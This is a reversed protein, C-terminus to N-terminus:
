LIFRDAIDRLSLGALAQYLATCQDDTLRCVFDIVARDGNDGAENDGGDVMEMYERLTKPLRSLSTEKKRWELMLDVLRRLLAQQAVQVVALEVRQVVFERTLEKYVQVEHWEDQRLLLNGGGQWKPEKVLDVAQVYDGIRSSAWRKLIGIQGTSGDFGSPNM